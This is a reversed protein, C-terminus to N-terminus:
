DFRNLFHLIQALTESESVDDTNLILNNKNSCVYAKAKMEPLQASYRAVNSIKKRLKRGETDCRALLVNDSAVLGITIFDAKLDKAFKALVDSFNEHGVLTSTFIFKYNEKDSHFDKIIDLFFKRLEAVRKFYERNRSQPVDMTIGDFMDYFYHNDLLIGGKKEQLLKAMTYKGSAPLGYILIVQNRKM